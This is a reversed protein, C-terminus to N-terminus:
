LHDYKEYFVGQFLLIKPLRLDSHGNKTTREFIAKFSGKVEQKITDISEIEFYADQQNILKYSYGELDEQFTQTFSTNPPGAITGTGIINYNGVSKTIGSFSIANWLWEEPEDQFNFLLTNYLEVFQITSRYGSEINGNIYVRSEGLGINSDIEAEVPFESKSCGFM